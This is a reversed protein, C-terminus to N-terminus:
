VVRRDQQKVVARHGIALWGLAHRLPTGAALRHGRQRAAVHPGTSHHGSPRPLPETSDRICM